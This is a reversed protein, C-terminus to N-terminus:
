LSVLLSSMTYISPLISGEIKFLFDSFKLRVKARMLLITKGLNAELSCFSDHDNWQDMTGGGIMIQAGDGQDASGGEIGMTTTGGEEEEETAAVVALPATGVVM